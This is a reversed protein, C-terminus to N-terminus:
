LQKMKDYKYKVIRGNNEEVKLRNGIADLTYDYSSIVIEEGTMPNIGRNQLSILLVDEEM